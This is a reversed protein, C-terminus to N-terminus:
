PALDGQDGRDDKRVQRRASQSRRKYGVGDDFPCRLMRYLYKRLLADHMRFLIELRSPPIYIWIWRDKRGNPESGTTAQGRSQLSLNEQFDELKPRWLMLHCVALQVRQFCDPQRHLIRYDLM